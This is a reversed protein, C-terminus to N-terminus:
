SLWQRPGHSFLDQQFFRQEDKAGSIIPLQLVFCTNASTADLHITGQHNRAIGASISLGLGTGKGVAKTTFFPQMIKSQLEVPVGKGSDIVRIQVHSKGEQVTIRIWKEPLGAVADFANSLLNLLVQSIEVSRCAIMLNAPLPDILIQVDHNKFHERCLSLTNEVVSHLRTAELADNRGDRAFFRLGEIIKAIRDSTETIKLAHSQLREVDLQGNKLAKSLIESKLRIVALPNNIEHAVGGAMEGLASMKSAYELKQMQELVLDTKEQVKQELQLNFDAVEQYSKELKDQMAQISSVLVDLEDAEEANAPTRDLQLPHSPHRIDWKRVHRTIAELHRTLLQHIVLFILSSVLITKLFQTLFIVFIKKHLRQYVPQLSASIQMHGVPFRGNSNEFILPYQITIAKELPHQGKSVTSFGQEDFVEVFEIGPNSLIGSIEAEVQARNLEWVSRTLSDLHIKKILELREHIQSVDEHYDFGLQVATILLTMLSSVLFIAALLKGSITKRLRKFSRYATRDLLRFTM